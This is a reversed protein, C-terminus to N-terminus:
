TEAVAHEFHPLLGEPDVGGQKPNRRRVAPFNVQPINVEPLSVHPLKSAAAGPIEQVFESFEHGAFKAERGLSRFTNRNPLIEWLSRRNVLVQDAIICLILFLLAILTTAWWTKYYALSLLQVVNLFTELPIGLLLYDYFHYAGPGYIMLNTQHGQPTTYDSAGLMLAYIVRNVDAHAVSAAVMAIPFM